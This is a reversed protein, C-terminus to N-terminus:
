PAQTAGEGIEPSRGDGEVPLAPHLRGRGVSADARQKSSEPDLSEEQSRSENVPAKNGTPM